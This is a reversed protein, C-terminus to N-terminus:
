SLGPIKDLNNKKLQEVAEQISATAAELTERSGNERGFGVAPGFGLRIENPTLIAKLVGKGRSSGEIHAPYVEARTRIAIMAVGTQFPLLNKSPEIGGEPFIGLVNGASLTRLALRLATSDRGNRDVPIAEIFEFLRRLSPIEYYERAMMWHIPRRIVSQIMLPDLGSIHNCVLIAPGSRPLTPPSVVELRHYARCLLRNIGAFFSYRLQRKRTESM